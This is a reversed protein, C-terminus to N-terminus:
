LQRNVGNCISSGWPVMECSARGPIRIKRRSNEKLDFSLVEGMIDASIEGKESNDEIAVQIAFRM